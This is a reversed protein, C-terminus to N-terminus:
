PNQLITKAEEILQRTEPSVKGSEAKKISDEAQKIVVPCNYAWSSSDVLVVVVSLLLVLVVRV